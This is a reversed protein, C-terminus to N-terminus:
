NVGTYLSYIYFLSAAKQLHITSSIFFRLFFYTVHVLHYLISGYFEVQSIPYSVYM